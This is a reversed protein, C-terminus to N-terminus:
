KNVKTADRFQHGNQRWPPARKTNSSRRVIALKGCAQLPKNDKHAHLYSDISRSYAIGEAVDFAARRYVNANQQNAAAHKRMAEM